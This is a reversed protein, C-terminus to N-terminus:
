PSAGPSHERPREAENGVWSRGFAQMAAERNSEYGEASDRGQRYGADITWFWVGTPALV